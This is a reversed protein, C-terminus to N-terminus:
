IHASSKNASFGCSGWLFEPGLGSTTYALCACSNMQLGEPKGRRRNRDGKWVQYRLVNKDM